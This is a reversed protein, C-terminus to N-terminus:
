AVLDAFVQGMRDIATELTEMSTAFSLRLYGERGFAAGPVTVVQAKDILLNTLDSSAPVTGRLLKSVNPFVYFAGKPETCSVGPLARLRPLIAHRREGFTTVMRRSPEPDGTLAALAAWQSISTANSTMHTQLKLMADVIHRPGAVYGIRWGTMAHTKSCSGCIVTVAKADRGLALPTVHEADDYVFDAYCEDFLITISRELAFGAIRELERRAMVAGSPNGPSNLVILRTADTCAALVVEARLAFGDEEAADVFVPIGGALRVQEPFTVWYPTPIVVEDGPDVLTMVASYLGQKGGCTVITEQGSYEVGERETYMAAVAERLEPVGAAPTYRTKGDIIARQAAECVHAPTPFDPEGPGLDFVEVGDRRLQAAKAGAALTASVGISQSRQSLRLPDPRDPRDPNDPSALNPTM